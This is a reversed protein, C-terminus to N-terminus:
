RGHLNGNECDAVRSPTSARPFQWLRNNNGLCHTGPPSLTEAALYKRSQPNAAGAPRNSQGTAPHM